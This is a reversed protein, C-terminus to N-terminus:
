RGHPLLHGSGLWEMKEVFQFGPNGTDFNMWIPPSVLFTVVTM